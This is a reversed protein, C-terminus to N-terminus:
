GVIRRTTAVLMDRRVDNLAGLLADRVRDSRRDETVAQGPAAYNHPKRFPVNLVSGSM